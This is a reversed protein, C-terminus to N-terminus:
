LKCIRCSNKSEESDFDVNPPITDIDDSSEKMRVKFLNESGCKEHTGTIEHELLHCDWPTYSFAM